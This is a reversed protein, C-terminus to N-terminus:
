RSSKAKKMSLLSERARSSIITQLNLKIQRISDASVVNDLENDSVAVKMSEALDRAIKLKQEKEFYRFPVIFDLRDVFEEPFRQKLLLRADEPSIEPDKIANSTFVVLVEDLPWTDKTYADYLSGADILQLLSLVTPGDMKEAEDFLIVAPEGKTLGQTLLGPGSASGFLDASSKIVNCQVEVFGGISKGLRKAIETKGIGPPGVCFLSTPRKIDTEIKLALSNQFASIAEEQGFYGSLSEDFSFFDDRSLTRREFYTEGDALIKKRGDQRQLVVSKSSLDLIETNTLFFDEAAERLRKPSPVETLQPLTKTILDLRNLLSPFFSITATDILEAPLISTGDSKRLKLLREQLMKSTLEGSSDISEHLVFCIPRKSVDIDGVLGTKDSIIGDSAMAIFDSLQASSGLEIGDVVIPSTSNESIQTIFKTARDSGTYGVSAGLVSNYTEASAFQGGRLLVPNKLQSLYADVGSSPAGVLLHIGPSLDPLRFLKQLLKPEALSSQRTSANPVDFITEKRRRASQFSPIEDLYDNM